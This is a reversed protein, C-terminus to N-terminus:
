TVYQRITVAIQISQVTYNRHLDKRVSLKVFDYVYPDPTISLLLILRGRTCCLLNLKLYNQVRVRQM